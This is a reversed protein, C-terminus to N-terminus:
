DYTHHLINKIVEQEQPSQMEKKLRDKARNILTAITGEPKELIDAMEQYNKEEIFRLMLVERYKQDLRGIAALIVDRAYSKDISEVLNDDAVIRELLLDNDEVRITAPRASRKRFNSVTENRTIRYIWSSFSLATDFDNLNKYVKIFVEQLIDEADDQGLGSLRIIYRLLRKEYRKMLCLYHSSEVLVRRVVEEDSKGNCDEVKGLM